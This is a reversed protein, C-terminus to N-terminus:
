ILFSANSPLNKKLHYLSYNESTHVAQFLAIAQPNGTTIKITTKGLLAYPGLTSVLALIDEVPAGSFLEFPSCGPFDPSFRTFGLPTDGQVFVLVWRHPPVHSGALNKIREEQGPYEDVPIAAYGPVAPSLISLSFQICEGTVQFGFKRYLQIAAPNDQQVALDIWTAGLLGAKDLMTQMLRRGLGQRRYSPHIGIRRIHARDERHSLVAYGVPQDQHTVTWFAAMKFAQYEHPSVPEHPFCAENLRYFTEYDLHNAGPTIRFMHFGAM